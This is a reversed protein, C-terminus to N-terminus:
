KVFVMFNYSEESSFGYNELYILKGVPLLNYLTVVTDLPQTLDRQEPQNFIMLGGPKTLLMVNNLAQSLNTVHELVDFCTAVDYLRDSLYKTIDEDLDIADVSKAYVNMCSTILGSGSGIDIIDKGAIWEPISSVIHLM